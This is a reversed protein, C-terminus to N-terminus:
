SQGYTTLLAGLASAESRSLWFGDHDATSLFGGPYLDLRHDESTWVPANWDDSDNMHLGCVICTSSDMKWSHGRRRCQETKEASVNAPNRRDRTTM